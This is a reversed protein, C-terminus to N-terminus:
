DYCPVRAGRLPVAGADTENWLGERVEFSRPESRCKGLDGSDQVLVLARDIDDRMEGTMKLTLTHDFRQYQM